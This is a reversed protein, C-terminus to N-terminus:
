LHRMPQYTEPHIHNTTKSSQVKKIIKQKLGVMNVTFTTQLTKWSSGLSPWLSFNHLISCTKSPNEWHVLIHCALTEIKQTEEQLNINRISFLLCLIFCSITKALLNKYTNGFQCSLSFAEDALLWEGFYDSPGLRGVEVYEENDSRRQLVSAIGQLCFLFSSWVVFFFSLSLLFLLILPLSIFPPPNTSSSPFPPSFSSNNLSPSFVMLLILGLLFEKAEYPCLHVPNLGSKQPISVQETPRTHSSVCCSAYESIGAPYTICIRIPEAKNGGSHLSYLCRLRNSASSIEWHRWWMIGKILMWGCFPFLQVTWSDPALITDRFSGLFVFVSEHVFRLM